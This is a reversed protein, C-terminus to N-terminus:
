VSFRAALTRKVTTWKCGPRLAFPERQTLAVRCLRRARRHVTGTVIRPLKVSGARAPVLLKRKM